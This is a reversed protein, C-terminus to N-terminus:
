RVLSLEARVLGPEVRPTITAEAPRVGATSQLAALLGPLADFRVSAFTLRVRGESTDLTTAAARLDREALVREVAALPEQARPAAPARQLSLLSDAQLRAAALVSQARPVDLSLRAIDATMPKWIALWAVTAAVVSAAVIVFRQERMSLRQWWAIM